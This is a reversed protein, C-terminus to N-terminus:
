GLKQKILILKLWKFCHYELYNFDTCVLSCLFIWHVGLRSKTKIVNCQNKNFYITYPSFYKRWLNKKSVLQKYFLFLTTNYSFSVGAFIKIKQIQGAFVLHSGFGSNTLERIYLYINSSFNTCVTTFSTYIQYFKCM